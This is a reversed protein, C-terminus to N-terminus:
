AGVCTSLNHGMLEKRVSMIHRMPTGGSQDLYKAFTREIHEIVSNWAPTDCSGRSHQEAPRPSSYESIWTNDVKNLDDQVELLQTKPIPEWTAFAHDLLFVKAFHVIGELRQEIDLDMPLINSRFRGRSIFDEPGSTELSSRVLVTTWWLLPNSKPTASTDTLVHIVFSYIAQEVLGFQGTDSRKPYGAYIIAQGIDLLDDQFEESLQLGMEELSNDEENCYLLFCIMSSWVSNFRRQKGFNDMLAALPTRCDSEVIRNITMRPERPWREVLAEKGDFLRWIASQTTSRQHQDNQFRKKTSADTESGVGWQIRKRNPALIANPQKSTAALFSIWNSKIALLTASTVPESAAPPDVTTLWTNFTPILRNNVPPVDLREDQWQTKVSPDTATRLASEYPSAM